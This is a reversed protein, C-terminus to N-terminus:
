PQVSSAKLQSLRDIIAAHDKGPHHGEAQGTRAYDLADNSEDDFCRQFPNAGASLLREVVDLYGQYAADAIPTLGTKWGLNVDAGSRILRDVIALHGEGAAAVLAIGDSYNVNVGTQLLEELKALDGQRAVDVLAVDNLGEESAGARRLLQQVAWTGLMMVTNGENDRIDVDAGAAILAKVADTHSGAAFLATQGSDNRANVDAGREVLFGIAEARNSVWFSGSVEMLATHGQSNDEDSGLNPDAGADLLAGMVAMHGYMAALILPSKGCENIANPDAGEALLQRVQALKGYVAADGLKEALKNVARAKRKIAYAIEKQGHKDACRRTEDDVLPYLYDYVAQHGGRAASMI